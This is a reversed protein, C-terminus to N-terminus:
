PLSPEAPSSRRAGPHRRRLVAVRFDDASLLDAESVLLSEQAASMHPVHRVCDVLGSLHDPSLRGTRALATASPLARLARGARARRRLSRRSSGTRPVVAASVSRHGDAEWTGRRGLEDLATASLAYAANLLEELEVVADGLDGDAVAGVDIHSVSRTLSAIKSVVEWGEAM